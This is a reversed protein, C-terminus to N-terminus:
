SKPPTSDITVLRGHEFHLRIPWQVVGADHSDVRSIYIITNPAFPDEIMPSGMIYQVQERTMGVKLRAVQKKDIYNGQVIDPRYVLGCGAISAIMVACLLVRLILLM